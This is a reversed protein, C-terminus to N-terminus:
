DLPVTKKPMIRFNFIGSKQSLNEGWSHRFFSDPKKHAHDNQTDYRGPGRGGTVRSIVQIPSGTAIASRSIITRTPGGWANITNFCQRIPCGDRIMILTHNTGCPAGCIRGLCIMAHAIPRKTIFGPGLINMFVATHKPCRTGLIRLILPAAGAMICDIRQIRTIPVGIARWTVIGRRMGVICRIRRRRHHIRNFGIARPFTVRSVPTHPVHALWETRRAHCLDVDSVGGRWQERNFIRRRCQDNPCRAADTVPIQRGAMAGPNMHRNAACRIPHFLNIPPM